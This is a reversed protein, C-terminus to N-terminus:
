RDRRKLVTVSGDNELIAVHVNAIDTCGPRLWSAQRDPSKLIEKWFKISEVPRRLEREGNRM